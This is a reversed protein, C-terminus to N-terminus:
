SRSDIVLLADGKKGSYEFKPLVVNFWGASNTLGITTLHFQGKLNSLPTNLSEESKEGGSTTHVKGSEHYSRKRDIGPSGCYVNKGDHSLWFLDVTKQNNTYLVRVRM